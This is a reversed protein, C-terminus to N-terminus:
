TPSTSLNPQLTHDCLEASFASHLFDDEHGNGLYHCTIACSRSRHYISPQRTIRLTIQSKYNKEYDLELSTLRM